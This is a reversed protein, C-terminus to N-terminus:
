LRVGAQSGPTGLYLDTLEIDIAIAPFVVMRRMVPGPVGAIETEKFFLERYRELIIRDRSDAERCSVYVGKVQLTKYTSPLSAVIAVRRTKELIRLIRLASERQVYFTVTKRDMGVVAGM